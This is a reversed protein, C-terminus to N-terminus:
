MGGRINNALRAMDQFTANIATPPNKVANRNTAWKNMSVMDAGKVAVTYLTALLSKFKNVERNVYTLRNPYGDSLLIGVQNVKSRDLNSSLIDYGMKVAGSMNTKGFPFPLKSFQKDFECKNNTRKPKLIFNIDTQPKDGFTIVAIRTADFSIKVESLLDKIFKKAIQYGTMTAGNVESTQWFMSGSRDLMVVLDARSSEVDKGFCNVFKRYGTKVNVSTKREYNLCDDMSSSLGINVLICLLVILNM